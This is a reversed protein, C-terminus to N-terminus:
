NGTPINFYTEWYTESTGWYHDPMEEEVKEPFRTSMSQLQAKEALSIRDRPRSERATKSVLKISM